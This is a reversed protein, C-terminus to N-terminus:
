FSLLRWPTNTTDNELTARWRYAAIYTKSDDLLNLGASGLYDIDLLLYTEFFEVPVGAETMQVLSPVVSGNDKAVSTVGFMAAAANTMNVDVAGSEFNKTDTFKLEVFMETITAGNDGKPIPIYARKPAATSVDPIISAPLKGDTNIKALGGATNMGAAGLYIGETASLTIRSGANIALSGMSFLTTMGSTFQVYGGNRYGVTITGYGILDIGTTNMTFEANYTPNGSNYKISVAQGNTSNLNIKGTYASLDATAAPLNTLRSGDVAPLRNSSDLSVLGGPQNMFADNYRIGEEATLNIVAATVGFESMQGTVGSSTDGIKVTYGTLSVVGSNTMSIASALGSSDPQNKLLVAGQYSTLDAGGGGQNLLSTGNFKIDSGYLLINGNASSPNSTGGGAIIRINAQSGDSYIDMQQTGGIVTLYSTLNIDWISPTSLSTRNNSSALQITGPASAGGASIKLTGSARLSVASGSYNSLDVSATASITGDDTITISTGDPKVKGAVSTTAIPTSGGVPVSTGAETITILEGSGNARLMVHGPDAKASIPTDVKLLQLSAQNKM